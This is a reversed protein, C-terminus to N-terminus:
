NLKLKVMKFLKYDLTFCNFASYNFDMQHLKLILQHNSEPCKSAPLKLIIKIFEDRCKTIKSIHSGTIYCVLAMFTIEVLLYFIM